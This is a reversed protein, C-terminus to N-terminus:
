FKIKNEPRGGWSPRFGPENFKKSKKNIILM